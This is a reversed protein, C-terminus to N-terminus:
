CPRGGLCCNCFMNLLCLNMCYKGTSDMGRRYTQGTQSYTNGSRRLSNYIQSYLPNNPDMQVAKQIEEMARIQNGIGQNALANLYHWRANREGSVIKNLIQIATNYQGNNICTVVRGIDESDGFQRTPKPISQAGSFGFIDDFGFGQYSDYGTGYNRYNYGSGSGNNGNSGSSGYGGTNGYASNGYYGYGGYNGANGYGAGGQQRNSYKEPNCLMDYAENVENMKEAAKPDNPHLDPHYEKAKKRYAKKIEDKDANRSVGLVSYPDNVM